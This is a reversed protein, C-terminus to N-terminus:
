PPPWAAKVAADEDRQYKDKGGLLQNTLNGSTDDGWALVDYVMGAFSSVTGLGPTGAIIDSELDRTAQAREKPDTAHQEKQYDNYGAVGAIVTGWGPIGTMANWGFDKAM